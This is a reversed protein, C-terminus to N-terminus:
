AIAPPTSGGPNTLAGSRRIIPANPRSGKRANCIRHAPRKNTLTDAGGLKLPIVHDVVFSLEESAPLTYDIPRGCIHCPPQAKAITRRDKDRLHTPGRKM